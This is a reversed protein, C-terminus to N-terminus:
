FRAVDTHCWDLMIDWRSIASHLGDPVSPREEHYRGAHRGAPPPKLAKVMDFGFVLTLAGAALALISVTLSMLRLGYFVVFALVAAQLLLKLSRPRKRKPTIPESSREASSLLDDLSM